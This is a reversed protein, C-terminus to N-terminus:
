AAETVHITKLASIMKTQNDRVVILGTTDTSVYYNAMYMTYGKESIYGSGVAGPIGDIKRNYVNITDKDAGMTILNSRTSETGYSGTLDYDANDTTVFSVMSGCLMAIYNTYATGDLWEGNSPESIDIDNCSEGLDVSVTFSGTKFKTTTDSASVCMSTMAVIVLVVFCKIGLKLNFGGLSQNTNLSICRIGEVM